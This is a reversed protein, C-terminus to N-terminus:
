LCGLIVPDRCDTLVRDRSSPASPPHLTTMPNAAVRRRRLLWGFLGRLAKHTKRARAESPRDHRATMGPIAM